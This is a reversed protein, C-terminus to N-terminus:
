SQDPTRGGCVDLRKISRTLRLSSGTSLGAAMTQDKKSIAELNLFRAYRCISWFKSSSLRKYREVTIKDLADGGRRQLVFNVTCCLLEQETPLAIWKFLFTDQRYRPPLWRRYQVRRYVYLIWSQSCQRNVYNRSVCLALTHHTDVTM